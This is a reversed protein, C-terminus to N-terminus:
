NCDIALLNLCICSKDKERIPKLNTNTIPFPRCLRRNLFGILETGVFAVIYLPYPRKARICRHLAVKIRQAIQIGFQPRYVAFVYRVLLPCFYPGRFPIDARKLPHRIIVLHKKSRRRQDISFVCVTSTKAKHRRDRNRQVQNEQEEKIFNHAAHHGGWQNIRCSFGIPYGNECEVFEFRVQVASVFDAFEVTRQAFHRSSQVGAPVAFAVELVFSLLKDRRCAM